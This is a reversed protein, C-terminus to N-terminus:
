YKKLFNGEPDHKKKQIRKWLEKENSFLKEEWYTTQDLISPWRSFFFSEIFTQETTTM